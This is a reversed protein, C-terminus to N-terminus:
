DQFFKVCHAAREERLRLQFLKKLFPPYPSNPLFNNQRNGSLVLKRQNKRSVLRKGRINEPFVINKVQVSTDLNSEQDSVALIELV